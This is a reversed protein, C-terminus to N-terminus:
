LFTQIVWIFKKAQPNIKLMYGQTDPGMAAQSVYGSAIKHTHIADQRYILFATNKNSIGNIKQSTIRHGRWQRREATDSVINFQKM